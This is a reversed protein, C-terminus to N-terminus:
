QNGGGSDSGNQNAPRSTASAKPMAGSKGPLYVTRRYTPYAYEDPTKGDLLPSAGLTIEVATPLDGGTWSDLWNAGDYYRFRIYKVRPTLFSVSIERGEMPQEASLIRQSTRELGDVGTTGDDNTALRLRYGAMELDHEPPIPDDTTKRVAWVAPGPIVTTLFTIHDSGGEVGMDLFPYSLACRLESTLHDMVARSASAIEVEETVAARVDLAQNYFAILAGTMGACIVIALIVEVLTFASRSTPNRRTM